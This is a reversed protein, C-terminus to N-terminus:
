EDPTIYRQLSSRILGFCLGIRSSHVAFSSRYKTALKPQQVSRSCRDPQFLETSGFDLQRVEGRAVFSLTADGFLHRALLLLPIEVNWQRKMSIEVYSESRSNHLSAVDVRVEREPLESKTGVIVIPINPCVDALTSHWFPLHDYTFASTLDFMILACDAGLLHDRHNGAFRPQGAIDFVNFTLPGQTTTFHLTSVDSGHTPAYNRLFEGTRVLTIFTTKGVGGDGILVLKATMDTM